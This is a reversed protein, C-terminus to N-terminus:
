KLSLPEKNSLVKKKDLKKLLEVKGSPNMRVIFHDKVFVSDLGLAKNTRIARESSRYMARNLTEVSIEKEKAM